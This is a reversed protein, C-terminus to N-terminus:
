NEQEINLWNSVLSALPWFDITESSSNLRCSELGRAIWPKFPDREFGHGFFMEFGAIAVVARWHDCGLIRRAKAHYDGSRSKWLYSQRHISVKAPYIRDLESVIDTDETPGTGKLLDSFAALANNFLTNKPGGFVRTAYDGVRAYVTNLYALDHSGDTKGGRPLLVDYQPDNSFQAGFLTMMNLWFFYAGRTEYGAAEARDYVFRAGALRDSATLFPSGEPLFDISALALEEIFRDRRYQKFATIHAPTLVFM